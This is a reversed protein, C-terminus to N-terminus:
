WRRPFTRPNWSASLAAPRDFVPRQDKGDPVRETQDVRPTQATEITLIVNQEHLVKNHKLNHLLATPV